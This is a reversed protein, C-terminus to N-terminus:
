CPFVMWIHIRPISSGPIEELLDDFSVLMEVIKVTGTAVCPFAHRGFAIGVSLIIAPVTLPLGPFLLFL